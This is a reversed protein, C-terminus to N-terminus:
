CDVVSLRVKMDREDLSNWIDTMKKQIDGPKANPMSKATDDRKEQLFLFFATLPRKPANPDREKKPKKQKVPKTDPPRPAIPLKADAGPIELPDTTLLRHINPFQESAM